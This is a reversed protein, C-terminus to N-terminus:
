QKKGKFVGVANAREEDWWWTDVHGLRNLKGHEPKGFKDWHAIGIKTKTMGPVFYFNWLLIRDLARIAAVYDEYNGATYIHEIMADVAPDRMNSWNQSYAQDAAASSFSNSILLTPMDDPLFWIAGADFDGSRMRFLWNSIEPSKISTTIGLRELVRTYHIFSSGLAPSVAVFRIHFQEGTEGHVLQNDRVVWGAERFLEMAKLLNERHWGPGINPPPEYAESFVRAPVQDRLPELFKLERASPLGSAALHSGHFFSTALGYFGYSRRNLWVFDWLLWLAERVRIDQFRKQDLNWFAPWWLGAPRSLYVTPTKFVGADAAPFKYANEWLRPLNEVHVDIVNGKVAETQVQDDRFYDFKLTAFNHRGRNVSLDKGWYDEVREYKLWRGVSFDGIRYPGSGLPPNVTTKTIDNAEAQWYHKPLVPLVGIRTPLIPNGQEHEAIHYRFERDNLVEISVFPDLPQSITAATNDKDKYVDFSFVLDDVTIPKGDHWRPGERLKFGIWAGDEAIAIGEALRGYFSSPEDASPSLLSDYLHNGPPSWVSLGAAVRGKLPVPNFSDWNGMQPIRMQGAKPADPNVYDFHEFEPGYGPEALFAYGHQYRIGTPADDARAVATGVLVVIFVALRVFMPSRHSMGPDYGLTLWACSDRGRGRSEHPRDLRVSWLEWVRM